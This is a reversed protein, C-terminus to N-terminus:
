RQSSDMAIQCIIAIALLFVTMHTYADSYLCHIHWLSRKGKTRTEADLLMGLADTTRNALKHMGNSNGQDEEASQLKITKHPPKALLIDHSFMGAGKLDFPRFGSRYASILSPYNRSDIIAHLGKFTSNTFIPLLARPTIRQLVLIPKDLHPKVMEEMANFVSSTFGKKTWLKKPPLCCILSVEARELYLGGFLELLGATQSEGNGKTEQVLYWGLPTKQDDMASSLIRGEETEHDPYSGVLVTRFHALQDSDPSPTKVLSIRVEDPDEPSANLTSYPALCFAVYYFSLFIRLYHYM